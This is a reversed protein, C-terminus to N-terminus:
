PLRTPDVLDLNHRVLQEDEDYTFDGVVGNGELVHPLWHLNDPWMRAYPIMDIYFWEPNMEKSEQLMGEWDHALFVHNIMGWEEEGQVRFTLHGLKTPAIPTLGTEEQTERIAAALPTEGPELKGGVGMLLGEGMGYKKTGLLIQDDQLLFLRAVHQFKAM